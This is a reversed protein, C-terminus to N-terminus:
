ASSAGDIITKGIEEVAPDLDRSEAFGALVTQPDSSTVKTPADDTSRRANKVVLNMGHIDVKRSKAIELLRQRVQDWDAAEERQLHVRIKLQDGERLDPMEALEDVDNIDISWKQISPTKLRTLKGASYRLARPEFTDGFNIAYPAGVYTVTGCRQPVHIDGSLVLGRFGRDHWYRNPVGQLKQGKGRTLGM